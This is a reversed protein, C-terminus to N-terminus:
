SLNALVADLTTAEMPAANWRTLTRVSIGLAAAVQARPLRRDRLARAVTRRTPAGNAGDLRPSRHRDLGVLTPSIGLEDAIAQISFGQVTLEMVRQRRISVPTRVFDASM